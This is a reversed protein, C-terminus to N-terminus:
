RFSNGKLYEGIALHARSLRSKVTGIALQLTEAIESYSLEELYRLVVVVRLKPSLVSLMRQFGVRGHEEKFSPCPGGDSKDLFCVQGEESIDVFCFEKKKRRRCTDIASNVSVRYIWSSLKSKFKFNQIKRYILIFAEQAADLADASNGTVRFAVRYVLDKYKAYLLRFGEEFSETGPRQCLRLIKTDLKSEM